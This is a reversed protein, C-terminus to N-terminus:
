GFVQARAFPVGEADRASLVPPGQLPWRIALQPDDWIITREAEPAYYDTTKYVCVASAGLVLFGHAFGKPIWVMRHNEASLEWGAWHGFTPSARRLDVCVDYLAGEVCRVLKGQPQGLQYHLGRLVNRESRSQNDQVFAETMGTLAQWRHASFSEFFHGRVDSFVVPELLLVGDLAQEVIRM